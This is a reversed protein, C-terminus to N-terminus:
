GEVEKIAEILRGVLCKDCGQSKPRAWSQVHNDCMVCSEATSVKATMVLKILQRASYANGGDSIVVDSDPHVAQNYITKNKDIYKVRM